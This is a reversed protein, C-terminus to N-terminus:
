VADMISPEEGGSPPSTRWPGAWAPHLCSCPSALSISCYSSSLSSHSFSDTQLFTCGSHAYVSGNGPTRNGTGCPLIGWRRSSKIVDLLWNWVGKIFLSLTVDFYCFSSLSHSWALLEVHVTYPPPLLTLLAAAIWLFLFLQLKLPKCSVTTYISTNTATDRHIASCSVTWRNSTITRSYPAVGPGAADRVVVESVRGLGSNYNRQIGKPCM